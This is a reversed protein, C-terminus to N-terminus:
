SLYVDMIYEIFRTDLNGDIDDFTFFVDRYPMLGHQLYIFTKWAFENRYSQNNMMGCHELLKFSGDSGSYITFDPAIIHEGFKHAEEYHYPIGKMYLMNAINQESKSRVNEGKLTVQSPEGYRGLSIKKEYPKRGWQEGDVVAGCLENESEEPQYSKPLSKLIDNPEISKLSSLTKELCIVNESIRALAEEAFRREKLQKVIEPKRRGIYEEKGNVSIYYYKTGKRDYARLRGEPLEKLAKEYKVRAERNKLLM